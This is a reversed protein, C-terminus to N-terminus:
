PRYTDYPTNGAPAAQQQMQQQQQQMQQQSQQMQQQGDQVDQQVQQAGKVQQQKYLDSQRQGSETVCQWHECREGIVPMHSGLADAQRGVWNCGALLPLIAVIAFHGARM